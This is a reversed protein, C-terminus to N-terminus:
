GTVAAVDSPRTGRSLFATAAPRLVLFLSSASLVAFGGVVTLFYGVVGADDPDTAVLAVVNLGHIACVPFELALGVLFVLRGRGDVLRAAGVFLLVATATQVVALAAAATVFWAPGLSTFVALVVYTTGVLTGAGTVAGLAAAASVSDPRRGPADPVAGTRTTM